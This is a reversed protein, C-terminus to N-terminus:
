LASTIKTDIKTWTWNLLKACLTCTVYQHMGYSHSYALLPTLHSRYGNTTYQHESSTFGILSSPKISLWAM